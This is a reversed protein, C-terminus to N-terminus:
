ARRPRIPELNRRSRHGATRSDQRPLRAGERHRPGHSPHCTPPDRLDQRAAAPRRDEALPSPPQGPEDATRASPRPLAVTPEQQQCLAPIGPEATLTILQQDPDATSTLFSWDLTLEGAIPHNLTKKGPGPGPVAVDVSAPRFARWWGRGTLHTCLRHAGSPPAASTATREPHRHAARRPGTRPLPAM